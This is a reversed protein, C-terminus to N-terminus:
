KKLLYRDYAALIEGKTDETYGAFWNLLKGDADVIVSAPTFGIGFKRALTFKSDDIIPFTVKLKERYTQLIGLPKVDVAAILVNLKTGFDRDGLSGLEDRCAACSSNVFVIAYTKGKFKASSYTENGEVSKAEWDPVVVGVKNAIPAPAPAAPAVAPAAPAAPAKPEEALCVSASAAIAAIVFLSLIKKM